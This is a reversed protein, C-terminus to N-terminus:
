RKWCCKRYKIGKKFRRWLFCWMKKKKWPIWIVLQEPTQKSNIIQQVVLLLHPLFFPLVPGQQLSLKNGLLAKTPLLWRSIPTDPSHLWHQICGLWLQWGSPQAWRLESHGVRMLVSRGSGLAAWPLLVLFVQIDWHRLTMWFYVNMAHVALM